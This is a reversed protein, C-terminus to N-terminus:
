QLYDYYAVKPLRRKGDGQFRKPCCTDCAAGINYAGPRFDSTILSDSILHEIKMLLRYSKLLLISRYGGSFAVADGALGRLIRVSLSQQNAKM